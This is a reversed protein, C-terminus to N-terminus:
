VAGDPSDPNECRLCVDECIDDHKIEFTDLDQKTYLPWMKEASGCGGEFCHFSLRLYYM